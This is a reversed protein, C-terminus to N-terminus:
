EEADFKVQTAQGRGIEHLVRGKKNRDNSTNSIWVVVEGTEGFGIILYPRINLEEEDQAIWHFTPLDTTYDYLKDSLEITAEYYMEPEYDKWQVYVSKPAKRDHVGHGGTSWRWCCSMSGGITSWSDDFIINTVFIENGKPTGTGVVMYGIKNACGTLVFILSLCIVTFKIHVM